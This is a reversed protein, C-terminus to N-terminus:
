LIYLRELHEVICHVLAKLSSIREADPSLATCDPCYPPVFYPKKQEFGNFQIVPSTTAENLSSFTNESKRKKEEADGM